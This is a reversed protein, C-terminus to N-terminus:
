EKVTPHATKSPLPLNFVGPIFFASGARLAATPAISRPTGRWRSSSPTHRPTTREGKTEPLLFPRRGCRQPHHSFVSM